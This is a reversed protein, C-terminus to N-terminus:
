DSDKFRIIGSRSKATMLEQSLTLSIEEVITTLVISEKRTDRWLSIPPLLAWSGFRFVVLSM